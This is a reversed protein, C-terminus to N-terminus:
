ATAAAAVPQSLVRGLQRRTLLMCTVAIASIVAVAWGLGPYGLMAVVFGGLAPGAASGAMMMAPTAAVARGSSDVQTLLGFMFTHTFIVLAVYLAAPVAFFAFSTAGTLSIAFLAQLIPGATGVNVPKLRKQLVAALIGPILNVFGTVILVNQVVGEGFNHADGIREVFSFIMAQNLAICVITGITFWAAKPFPQRLVAAGMGPANAGAAPVAPFFLLAVVAGLTMTIAFAQFIVRGGFSAIIGPLAAFMIIALIAMAVNALGFLRHPNSTRGIAGHTVSLAAGTGLGAIAHVGLFVTLSEPSIPQWSAVLFACAAVCYGLCAFVRHNLRTFLPAFISSSVVVSALFMTVTLGAQPASLGYFKMLSGVWLPLAALDIMGAMHGISLTAQGGWSNLKTM